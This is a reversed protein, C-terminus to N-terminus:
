NREFFLQSLNENQKIAYLILGAMLAAVGTLLSVFQMGNISTQNLPVGFPHNVNTVHVQLTTDNAAGPTLNGFAFHQSEDTGYNIRNFSQGDPAAGSFGSRDVLAGSAGYLSLIEDSDKLTLKTESRRFVLYGSAGIQHGSLSFQKGNKTALKWGDLNIPANGNNVLEIFEGKAESGIPNPLWENIFVM